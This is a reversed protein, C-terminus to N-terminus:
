AEALKDSDKEPVLFGNKEDIIYSPPAREKTSITIKGCAMAELGVLGLSESKRYTPFCFLDLSNYIHRLNTQDQLKFRVIKNELQLKKVLENFKQEEAGSGVVIFKY